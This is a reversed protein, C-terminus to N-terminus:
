GEVIKPYGFKILRLVNNVWGAPVWIDKVDIPPGTIEYIEKGRWEDYAWWCPRRQEDLEKWTANPFDSNPGNVGCIMGEEFRYKDYYHYFTSFLKDAEMQALNAVDTLKAWHWRYFGKIYTPTEIEPMKGLEGKHIERAISIYARGAIVVFPEDAVLYLYPAGCGEDSENIEDAEYKVLGKPINGVFQYPFPKYENEDDLPIEAVWKGDDLIVEKDSGCLGLKM